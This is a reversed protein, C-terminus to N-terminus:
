YAYPEFLKYAYPKLNQKVGRQPNKEGKGRPVQESDTRSTYKAKSLPRGPNGGSKVHGITSLIGSRTLINEDVPSDGEKTLRELSNM